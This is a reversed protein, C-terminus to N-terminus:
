RREKREKRRRRGAGSSWVRGEGRSIFWRAEEGKYQVLDGVDVRGSGFFSREGAPTM